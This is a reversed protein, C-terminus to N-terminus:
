KYVKVSGSKGAITVRPNASDDGSVKVYVPLKSSNNITIRVGVKDDNDKRASSKILVKIDEASTVEAEYSESNDLTYKCYTKGDKDYFEYTVTSVSDDSNSIVSAEKGAGNQGVLKASVDSSAPNLMTYFDYNSEIASGETEDYKSLTAEVTTSVSAGSNFINNVGTEVDNLDVTREPRDQGEISYCYMEIDGTYLDNDSDYTISINNITMRDSYTDVYNVVQKIEDYSGTYSMPFIARYCDYQPAPESTALVDTGSTESAAETTAEETEETGEESATDAATDLSSTGGNLGLTYFQEKEGMELKTADFGYNDRLGEVFMITIEQNLDAPFKNLITDYEENFKATDALYQDRNAQKAQLESLRSKLVVNESKITQMSQYNPQAVYMFSLFAAAIGILGFILGKYGDNLKM